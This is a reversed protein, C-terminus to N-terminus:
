RSTLCRFLRKATVAAAEAVIAHELLFIIFRTRRSPTHRNNSPTFTNSIRAIHMEIKRYRVFPTIRVNECAWWSKEGEIVGPVDPSARLATQPRESNLFLGSYVDFFLPPLSRKKRRKTLFPPYAVGMQCSKPPSFSALDKYTMMWHHLPTM